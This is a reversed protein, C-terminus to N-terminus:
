VQDVPLGAPAHSASRLLMPAPRVCGQLGRVYQFSSLHTSPRCHTVLRERDRASSRGARVRLVHPGCQPRGPAREAATKEGDCLLRHSPRPECKFMAVARPTGFATVVRHFLRAGPADMLQEPAAIAGDPLRVSGSSGTAEAGAAVTNPPAGPLLDYNATIFPNPPPLQLDAGPQAADWEELMRSPIDGAFFDFEFWAEHSQEVAQACMSGAM